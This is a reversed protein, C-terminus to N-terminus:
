LFFFFVKVLKVLMYFKQFMMADHLCKLHHLILLKCFNTRITPNYGTPNPNTVFLVLQYHWCHQLNVLTVLTNLRNKPMKSLQLCISLTTTAFNDRSQYKCQLSHPPHVSHSHSIISYSTSSIVATIIVILCGLLCQM